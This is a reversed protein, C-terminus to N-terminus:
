SLPFEAIETRQFRNQNDDSITTAWLRGEADQTVSIGEHNDLLGYATEVLTEPQSWAGPRLRSIRTAFFALRFKRELLYLNGDPGFDAGVPVFSGRRPLHGIVAWDTNDLRYIAFGDQGPTEPGPTEPGPTEPIVFVAGDADIALTELSANSPLARWGRARPLTQASGDATALRVVRGHRWGEFSVLLSGDPALALGESDSARSQLRNGDADHLPTVDLTEIREIQGDADRRLRGRVLYGRDSLAYFALRDPMLEFGSFGGFDPWDESWTRVSHPRGAIAQLPMIRLALATALAFTLIQRRNPRSSM